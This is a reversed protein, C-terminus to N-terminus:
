QSDCYCFSIRFLHGRTCIGFSQSKAPVPDGCIGCREPSQAAASDSFSDYIQLVLSLFVNSDVSSALSRLKNRIDQFLLQSAAETQSNIRSLLEQSLTSDLSMKWHTMNQFLSYTLSTKWRTGTNVLMSNRAFM